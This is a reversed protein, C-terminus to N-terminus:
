IGMCAIQPLTPGRLGGMILQSVDGMTIDANLFSVGDFMPIEVGANAYGALL